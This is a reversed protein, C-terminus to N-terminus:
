FWPPHAWFSFPVPQAKAPLVWLALAAYQSAIKSLMVFLVKVSLLVLETDLSSISFKGGSQDIENSPHHLLIVSFKLLMVKKM